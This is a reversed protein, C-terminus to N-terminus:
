CLLILRFHHMLYQVYFKQQYFYVFVLFNLVFIDENRIYQPHFRFPLLHLASIKCSPELCM